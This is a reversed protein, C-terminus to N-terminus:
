LDIFEVRQLVLSPAVSWYSIKQALDPGRLTENQILSLPQPQGRFHSSLWEPAETEETGYQHNPSSQDETYLQLGKQAFLCVFLCFGSSFFLQSKVLSCSFPVRPTLTLSQFLDFM